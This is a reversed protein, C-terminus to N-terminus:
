ILRSRTEIVTGITKGQEYIESYEGESGLFQIKFSDFTKKSILLGMGFRQYDHAERYKLFSPSNMDIDDVNRDIDYPLIGKDFGGGRDELTIIVEHDTLKIRLLIPSDEEKEKHARISNNVLELLAHRGNELKDDAIGSLAIQHLEGVFSSFDTNRSIRLLISNYKKGKHKLYGM